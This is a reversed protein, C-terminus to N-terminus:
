VASVSNNKFIPSTSLAQAYCRPLPHASSCVHWLSNWCPSRTYDFRQASKTQNPKNEHTTRAISTRRLPGTAHARAGLRPCLRTSLSSVAALLGLSLSHTPPSVARKRAADGADGFLPLASNTHAAAPGDRMPWNRSRGETSGAAACLAHSVSVPSASTHLTHSRPGSKVETDATAASFSLM